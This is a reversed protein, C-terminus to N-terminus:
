ASGSTAKIFIYCVKLRLLFYICKLAISILYTSHNKPYDKMSLTPWEGGSVQRGGLFFSLFFVAARRLASQKKIRNILRYAAAACAVAPQM